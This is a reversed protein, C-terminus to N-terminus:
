RSSMIVKVFIAFKHMVYLPHKINQALCRMKPTIQPLTWKPPTYM